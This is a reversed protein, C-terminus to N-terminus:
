RHMVTAVDWIFWTPRADSGEIIRAERAEAKAEAGTQSSVTRLKM